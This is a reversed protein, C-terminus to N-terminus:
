QSIAMIEILIERSLKDFMEYEPAEKTCKQFGICTNKAKHCRTVPTGINEQCPFQIGIFHM